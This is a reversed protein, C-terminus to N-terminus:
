AQIPTQLQEQRTLRLSALLILSVITGVTNVNISFLRRGAASTYHQVCTGYRQVITASLLRDITLFVIYGGGAPGDCTKTDFVLASVQTFYSTCYTQVLMKSVLWTSVSSDCVVCTLVVLGSGEEVQM